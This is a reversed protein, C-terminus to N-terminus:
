KKGNEQCKKVRERAGLSDFNDTLNKKEILQGQFILSNIYM